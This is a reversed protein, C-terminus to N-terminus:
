ISAGQITNRELSQATTVDNAVVFAKVPQQQQGAITEALQNTESSGVINFAPAQAASVAPLSSSSSGSSRGGVSAAVAKTKKVASMVGKVISVAQAAYLILFPIAKPFGLKLTESLGTAANQGAKAGDLQAEAATTTAKNKLVGLDVLFEQAALLQKAVLAAKGLATEQGALGIIADLAQAKAAVREAEIRKEEELRLKEDELKKDAREKEDDAEQDEIAKKAAAEEAKLAITQSTVERQKTLKATELQILQAELQAQAELDEKTSLGLANEAKQAELRLKVAAIEKNTIEEELRGAEELFAIREKTTFEERNVAKELLAARDRDAKARDVILQRDVKDAEARLDAIQGAVKAEELAAKTAEKTVKVLKGTAKVLQETVIVTPNIGRNLKVFGKGADEAAGKFDGKFVKAIAKGLLGLGEAALKIRDLFFQKISKGFDELAKRPNTFADIIATGLNALRDLLEGTVAGIQGLLRAYKNQGEESRTFAQKISTVLLVLAGLGTAAVALRLVGFSKIATKVTKLLNKFGSLAGGTFKDVVDTGKQITENTEQTAVQTDEISDKLKEIDAIASNVNAKIEIIETQAM